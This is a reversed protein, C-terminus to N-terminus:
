RRWGAKEHASDHAVGAPELRAWSSSSSSSCSAQDAGHVLSKLLRSAFPGLDGGRRPRARDGLFLRRRRRTRLCSPRSPDAGSSSAISSTGRVLVGANVSSTPRTSSAGRPSTASSRRACAPQRSGASGQRTPRSVTTRRGPRRPARRASCTASSGADAEDSSRTQDDGTRRPEARPRRNSTPAVVPLATRCQAGRAGPHLRQVGVRRETCTLRQAFRARRPRAMVEWITRTPRCRGLRPEGDAAFRTREADVAEPPQEIAGPRHLLRRRRRSRGDVSTPVGAGVSIEDDGIKGGGPATAYTGGQPAHGLRSRSGRPAPVRRRSAGAATRSRTRHGPVAAAARDHLRLGARLEGFADDCTARRDDAFAPYRRRHDNPGTSRFTGGAPLRAMVAGRQPGPATCLVTGAVTGVVTGVVTCWVTGAAATDM